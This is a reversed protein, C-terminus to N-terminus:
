PNPLKPEYEACIARYGVLRALEPEGEEGRVLDISISLSTTSHCVSPTTAGTTIVGDLFDGITTILIIFGKFYKFFFFNVGQELDCGLKPKAITLYIM